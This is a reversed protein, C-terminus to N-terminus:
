DKGQLYLRQVHLEMGKGPTQNVQFKFLIVPRGRWCFVTTGDKEQRFEGYISPEVTANVGEIHLVAAAAEHKTAWYLRRKQDRFAQDLAQDSSQHFYDIESM